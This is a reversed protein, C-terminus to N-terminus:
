NMDLALAGAGGVPSVAVTCYGAPHIQRLRSTLEGVSTLEAERDCKEFRPGLSPDKASPKRQALVSSTATSIMDLLFYWNIENQDFYSVSMFTVVHALLAAGMAWCYQAHLSRPGLRRVATGIGGCCRAITVIFLVM